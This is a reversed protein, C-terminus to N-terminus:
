NYHNVLIEYQYLPTFSQCIQLHTCLPNANFLSSISSGFLSLARPRDDQKKNETALIWLSLGKKSTHLESFWWSAFAHNCQLVKPFMYCFPESSIIPVPHYRRKSCSTGGSVLILHSTPVERLKGISFTDIMSGSWPLSQLCTPLPSPVRIPLPLIGTIWDQHASFQLEFQHIKSLSKSIRGERRSGICQRVTLDLHTFNPGFFGPACPTFGPVQM